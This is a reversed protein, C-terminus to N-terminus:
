VYFNHYLRAQSKIAELTLKRVDINGRMSVNAVDGNIFVVVIIKDPNKGSRRAGEKVKKLEREYLEPTINQTIFGSGLEGAIKLMRPGFAAVWIPPHPKQIPKASIFADKYNFFSGSYNVKDEMWFKKLVIIVERSRSTLKKLPFGIDGFSAENWVGRGVGLVFRGGSIKDLTATVHALMPPSRRNPDIVFPGLKIKKTKVAIATLASLAEYPVFVHDAVTVIDFGEREAELADRIGHSEFKKLSLSTGFQIQNEL